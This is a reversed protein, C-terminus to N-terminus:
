QARFISKLEAENVMEAAADATVWKRTREHAEPFDESLDNVEVSYVLTTVPIELGSNRSKNYDYSGIPDEEVESNTVGAEEWAERLATGSSDLGRIPWGKPIIWRGTDRSTILLFEKERGVGRHCLAAMQLKKPRQFMPALVAGWLSQIFRLM